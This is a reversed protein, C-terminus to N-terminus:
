GEQITLDNDLALQRRRYRQRIIFAAATGSIGMLAWTAPEPVATLVLNNGDGGQYSIAWLQGGSTFSAGEGLNMFHGQIDGSGLNDILTFQQGAQPLFSNILAIDLQGDLFISGAITLRDYQEGPLLGGIEFHSTASAGIEVSGAYMVNAPSNGPRLDGQYEVTGTGTFPGAGSVAGLFVTRSGGGTRIEIGNHVVDDHFTVTGAGATIIRGTATNVVKGYIDSVDASFAVTGQNNLGIGSTNASSGRFTGRGSIFGGANNDLTNAFEITGNSLEITGNANNQNNNGAFLLTQGNEVLIRGNAGNNLDAQIRGSGRIRGSNNLVDGPQGLSSTIQTFIVENQNNIAGASISGGTLYLPGLIDLNNNIRVTSGSGLTLQTGFSNDQLIGIVASGNNIEFRGAQISLKNLNTITDTRFTGGNLILTSTLTTNGAVQVTQDQRLVPTAGLIAQLQYYDANWNGIFQVTGQNFHFHGGSPVLNLMSLAGGNLNVTGASYLNLNGNVQLSGGTDITLTASQGPFFNGNFTAGGIEFDGANNWQGQVQASGVGVYAGLMTQTTQLYAGPKLLLQGTSGNDIGIYTGTGSEIVTSGSNINFRGNGGLRGVYLSSGILVQSATIDAQSNSAFRGVNLNAIQLLSGNMASLVSNQGVSLDTTNNMSANSFSLAGNINFYSGGNNFNGDAINLSGGQMDITGNNMRTLNVTSVTSGPGLTLTGQNRVVIGNGGGTVNLSSNLLLQISGIGGDSIANGGLYISGGSQNWTGEILTATGTSGASVGLYVNGVNTLSSHNLISLQGNGSVGITIGQANVTGISSANEGITLKGTSGSDDGLTLSSGFFAQGTQMVKVEGSGSYGIRTNSGMTLTANNGSVEIYGTSASASGIYSSDGINAAAGAYVELRGNGEVGIDFFSAAIFQASPGEVRLTGSSNPATAIGGTSSGQASLVQLTGNLVYLTASQGFTNGIQTAQLQSLTYTNGAGMNFAVAGRSISLGRNEVNSTFNVIYGSSLNFLASQTIGPPGSPTWNSGLHFNGGAANNWSFTQGSVTSPLCGLFLGAGALWHIKRTM